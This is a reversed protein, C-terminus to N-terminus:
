CISCFHPNVQSKLQELEAHLKENEMHAMRYNDKVWRQFLKIATSAAVLIGLAISFSVVTSIKEDKTEEPRIQFQKLANGVQNFLIM